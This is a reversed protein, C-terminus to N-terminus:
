HWYRAGRPGPIWGGSWYAIRTGDPSFRMFMVNSQSLKWSRAAKGTAVDWAQITGQNDGSWVQKSDPSFTLTTAGPPIHFKTSGFRMLAGPPLSEDNARMNACLTVAILSIASATTFRRM